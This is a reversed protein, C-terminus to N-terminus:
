ADIINIYTEDGCTLRDTRADCEKKEEKIDENIIVRVRARTQV